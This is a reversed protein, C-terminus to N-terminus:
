EVEINSLEITSVLPLEQEAYRPTVLNVSLGGSRTNLGYNEADYFLIGGEDRFNFLKRFRLGTGGSYDYAFQALRDSDPEFWYMYESEDGASTGPQFSVRVKRLERGDWTEMGLDEKYTGPDNLKYPLFLFYLRQNVYSHAGAMEGEPIAVVVGDETKELAVNTQTHVTEVGDKTDVIRHEFTAGSRKTSIDFSGSKSTVTLRVAASEVRDGGHVAIARDVFELREVKEASAEVATESSRADSDQPAACGTAVLLTLLPTWARNM